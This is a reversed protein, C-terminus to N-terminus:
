SMINLKTKWIKLPNHSDPSLKKQKIELKADLIIIVRQKYNPYVQLFLFITTYLRVSVSVIFIILYFNCLKLKSCSSINHLLGVINDIRYIILIIYNFHKNGALQKDAEFNISKNRNCADISPPTSTLSAPLLQSTTTFM